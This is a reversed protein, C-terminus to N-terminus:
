AIVRNYCREEVLSILNKILLPKALIDVEEFSDLDSILQNGYATVFVIAQEPNVDRIELALTAGNKLPMNHDIIVTDYIIPDEKRLTKRARLYENICEVGDYTIKVKHGRDEFGMKYQAAIDEEDEAILINLPM